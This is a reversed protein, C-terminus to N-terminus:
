LKSNKETLKELIEAKKRRPIEFTKGDRLEIIFPDGKSYSKIYFTNLLFSRSTRVFPSNSGLYEEFEKLNRATTHKEGSSTYIHCYRGEAEVYHIDGANLIRVREGSHIAFRRERNMDDLNYLLNVIQVRNGTQQDLRQKVRQIAQDLSEFDLPKLLYDLANFKIANIAYQDYSTVFIVEFPVTDFRTLLNFGNAKPMQIDLFVLQPSHECVLRYAEDVDSAQGVIEVSPFDALMRQLLERNDAEDDVLIATIKYNM